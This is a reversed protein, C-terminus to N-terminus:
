FYWYYFKWKGDHWICLFQDISIIEASRYQLKMFLNSTVGPSPEPGGISYGFAMVSPKSYEYEKLGDFGDPLNVHANTPSLVYEWYEAMTNCVTNTNSLADVFADAARIINSNADSFEFAKLYADSVQKDVFLSWAGASNTVLDRPVRMDNFYPRAIVNGDGINSDAGQVDLYVTSNTWLQRCLNIDDVIRSQAASTLNTAEFVVDFSNTGVIVQAAAISATLSIIIILTKM